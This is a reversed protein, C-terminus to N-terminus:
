GLLLPVPADHSSVAPDAVDAVHWSGVLDVVDDGEGLSSGVVVVVECRDV